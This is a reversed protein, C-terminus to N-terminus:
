LFLSLFMLYSLIFFFLLAAVHFSSSTAASSHLAPSRSDDQRCSLHLSVSILCHGQLNQLEKGEVFCVHHSTLSAESCVISRPFFAMTGSPPAAVYLACFHTWIAVAYPCQFFLHAHSEVGPLSLADQFKKKSGFLSTGLSLPLQSGFEIGFLEVLSRQFMTIQM